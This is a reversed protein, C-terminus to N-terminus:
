SALRVPEAVGKVLVTRPCLIMELGCLIGGVTRQV